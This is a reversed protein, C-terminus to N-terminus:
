AAKRGGPIGRYFWVLAGLLFDGNIRNSEGVFSSGARGIQERFESTEFVARVRGEAGDVRRVTMGKPPGSAKLTAAIAAADGYIDKLKASIEVSEFWRERVKTYKRKPKEKRTVDATVAVQLENGDALRVKAALWAHEYQFVKPGMMGGEKSVLRGGKRHDRFDIRLDVLAEQPIDAGLVRIFKLATALKRDDLDHRKTRVLLITFTIPVALVFFLPPATFLTIVGGIWTFVTFIALWKSKREAAKDEVGAKELRRVLLDAREHFTYTDVRM